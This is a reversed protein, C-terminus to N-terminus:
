GRRSFYKDCPAVPKSSFYSLSTDRGLWIKKQENKLMQHYGSGEGMRRCCLAMIAFIPSCFIRTFPMVAITSPVSVSAPLTAVSGNQTRCKISAVPHGIAYAIPQAVHFGPIIILCFLSQIAYKLMGLLFEFDSLSM